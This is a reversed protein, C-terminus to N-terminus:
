YTLVNILDGAVWDVAGTNDVTINSGSVVTAGDWAKAVGASTTVNATGGHLPGFNSGSNFQISGDIVNQATVIHQLAKVKRFDSM